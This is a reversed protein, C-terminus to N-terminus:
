KAGETAASSELIERGIRRLARTTASRPHERVYPTFRTLCARVALDRPIGGAYRIKLGLYRQVVERMSRGLRDADRDDETQNMILTLNLERLARELFEACARDVKSIQFILEPLPYRYHRMEVVQTFIRELDLMRVVKELRRLATSRLFHYCSEVSTPEPNVVLTGIDAMLFYDIDNFSTGAGIDVITIGELSRIHNILKLKQFHKINELFVDRTPGAFLRLNPFMTPLGIEELSPGNPVLFDGLNPTPNRIGLFTHLNPAGLDADLLNIPCT